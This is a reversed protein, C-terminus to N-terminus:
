NKNKIIGVLNKMTVKEGTYLVLGKYIRGSLMIVLLSFVLLIVTSLIGQGIGIAGTLLDAPVCFPITFPINRAVALLSEKEMLTGMYCVLWSIVIPLMFISQTNAAEEPRSVMSGAMGSLVCYFLFGFGFSVLALVVAVPSFASEGINARMFEVVVSLGSQTGPYMSEAIYGGAVIGVVLSVVWIFFQQMATAVIAFVKGTLLAYPHLSTLLTEVLKSTKEVSVSQNIKQGYLLLLFYLVIGFVAPALYKVLYVMVNTEEGADSVNIAVQKNIQSFQLESLGSQVFRAQEVATAVLEAVEQGDMLSLEESTSPVVATVEIANDTKEIVVGVALPEQAAKTQLEEVTMNEVQVLELCSYYLEGLQPIWEKFKLEGVGAKDLVYATEVACYSINKTEDGDDESPKASVISILVSAAIIIIAVLATVAIYSKSGANQKYNFSFVSKWGKFKNM